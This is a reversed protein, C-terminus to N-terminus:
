QVQITLKGRARFVTVTAPQFELFFNNSTVTDTVYVPCRKYVTDAEKQASSSLSIFLICAAICIRM